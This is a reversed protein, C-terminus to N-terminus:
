PSKKRLVDAHVRAVQGMYGNEKYREAAKLIHEKAKKNDGIAEFYIGLYLNAYFMPEGSPLKAPAAKAAALVDDPTAKGAFLQQVQAMPIRTDGTIPILKKKAAELSEARTTCLFHWVANEVDQKNVRQHLEFQAKGDAYRGAYYLSIGRQWHEAAQDPVLELYKDFDAVSEAFKGAKFNAEGRKQLADSSRANLKIVESYDAVAKVYEGQLEYIQGRLLWGEREKPAVKIAKSAFNIGGPLDGKRVAAVAQQALEGPDPDASWAAGMGVVLTAQVALLL